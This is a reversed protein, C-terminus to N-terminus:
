SVWYLIANVNQYDDGLFGIPTTATCECTFMQHVTGDYTLNYYSGSAGSVEIGAMCHGPLRILCVNYGMAKMLSCYLISVDECDGKTDYLTEVGFKWYESHGTGVSDLEYTLSQVFNLVFTAKQVETWSSGYTSICSQMASALNQITTDTYDVFQTVKVRNNSYSNREDVPFDAYKVLDSFTIYYNATYATNNGTYTWTVTRAISGDIYAFQIVGTHVEDDANQATMVFYFGPKTFTHTITADGTTQSQSDSDSTIPFILWKNSDTGTYGTDAAMTISAGAAGVIDWNAPEDDFKTNLAFILTDEYVAGTSYTPDESLLNFEEDYWGSFEYGDAAAATLTVDTGPVYSGYGTVTIGNGAMVDVDYSEAPTFDSVGTVTMEIMSSVGDNTGSIRVKYEQGDAVWIKETMGDETKEYITCTYSVGGINLIETGANTYDEYNDPGFDEWDTDSDTVTNSYTGETYTLSVSEHCYFEHTNENFSYVEISGTGAITYTHGSDTEWGSISMDFKKLSYDPCTYAYLTIDGRTDEDIGEFEQTHESDTYWGIFLQGDPATPEGIDVPTGETYESPNSDSNTCGGLDYSITRVGSDESSDGGIGGAATVAVAAVAIVAIIAILGKGLAASAKADGSLRRGRGDSSRRGQM